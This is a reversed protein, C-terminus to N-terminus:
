AESGGPRRPAVPIRPAAAFLGGLGAARPELVRTPAFYPFDFVIPDGSRRGPIPMLRATLPKDLRLALAGVDLLIAALEPAAIRGPLPVTDLGTGCVASSLLLDSTTLTGDAARAALVADEFVPLFLGCFGARPFVAQDLTSTLWASAALTGAEGARGGMLRELATGLSRAAEPYPAMSFDIGGFAAGTGALARETASALRRAEIEVRAVLLDRADDLTAAESCAHVAAAAGEVGLSVVPGSQGHYAAPLFPVGPPVNALAAFRLNGFGDTGIGACRHIIEATLQVAGVDLGAGRDAIIASAFAATTGALADPIARFHDPSDSPRAPGITVFDFGHALARAQLERAFAAVDDAAVVEGFPCSAYRTTQVTYGGAEIAQRVGRVVRGADALGATDLPWGPHSGYTVTRINIM